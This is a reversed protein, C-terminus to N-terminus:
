EIESYWCIPHATDNVWTKAWHINVQRPFGKKGWKKLIDLKEKM